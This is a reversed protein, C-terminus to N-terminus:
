IPKAGIQLVIFTMDSTDINSASIEVLDKAKIKNIPLVALTSNNNMVNNASEVIRRLKKKQIPKCQLINRMKITNVISETISNCEIVNPIFPVVFNYSTKTIEHLHPTVVKLALEHRDFIIEVPCDSYKLSSIEKSTKITLINDNFYVEKFFPIDEETEKGEPIGKYSLAGNVKVQINLEKIPIRYTVPYDFEITFTDTTGEVSIEKGEFNLTTNSYVMNLIPYPSYLYNDSNEPLVGQNVYTRDTIYWWNDTSTSLLFGIRYDNLRQVYIYEVDKDCLLIPATWAYKNEEAIYVYQVYYPRANKIFACILGQDQTLFRESKYGRVVSVCTVNTDLVKRTTLDGGKYVVLTNDLEVIFIYPDEETIITYTQEKKRLTWIGDFEIAALLGAGMSYRPMWATYSSTGWPRSKVLLENADLGIVWLEDPSDNNELQKTAIDQIDLGVDILREALYGADITFLIDRPYAELNGNTCQCTVVFTHIGALRKLYAHPVGIINHGPLVTYKLPAYLEEIENDYFRLIVDCQETSYFDILFHGNVDTNGQLTCAIMAIAMEDQFIELKTENYDYLVHPLSQEVGEIITSVDSELEPCLEYVSLDCAINATITLECKKYAGDQLNIPFSLVDTNIRNPYIGICEITGDELEIDLFMFVSTSLPNLLKDAYVNVLISRTITSLRTKDLIIKATGNPQLTLLGNTISANELTYYAAEKPLINVSYAM